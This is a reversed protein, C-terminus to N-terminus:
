AGKTMATVIDALVGRQVEIDPACGRKAWATKAVSLAIGVQPGAKLGLAVVDKGTLLFRPPNEVEAIHDLLTADGTELAMLRLAEVAVDGYQDGLNFFRLDGGARLLRMAALLRSLRREEENSLRLLDRLRAIDDDNRVALAFLRAEIGAAGAELRLTFRAIDLPLGVLDSILGDREAEHMVALAHPAVVLKLFEQRIRERSLKPFGGRNRRVAALGAADLTGDGYAASFRFFRLGRLYDERIRADPDGIFRVRRAAIDALGGSYDHLVSDPGMSLANITFDRRAADHEFDRGFRVKARRGDTEIDERLTTVEFGRGDRVITVTGHEIGTPVAHWGADSARRSVEEPPMTTALDIDHVALGMLVNRLAGGVIRTEEGDPNLIMLLDAVLPDDLLRLAAEPAPRGSM